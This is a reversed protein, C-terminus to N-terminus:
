HLSNSVFQIANDTVRLTVMGSTLLNGDDDYFGGDFAYEIEYTDASIQRGGTCDAALYNTDGHWHVYADYEAVYRWSLSSSMDSLSYGTKQLLFDSIQQATLITSDCDPTGDTFTAEDAARIADANAPAPLGAGTYFVQYMDVDRVDDYDSLLFGYNSEDCLANEFDGVDTDSLASPYSDAEGGPEATQEASPLASQIPRVIVEKKCGTFCCLTFAATLCLLFVYKAKM